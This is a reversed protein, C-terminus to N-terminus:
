FCDITPFGAEGSLCDALYVALGLDGTWLSYRGQGHRARADRYQRIAAAAFARARALWAADGTHRWLKLLAYGNGATGHCLGPGKALPGARWVLEGAALLLADLDATRVPGDAFSTVMGPAGHCHQLLRPPSARTAVAHWNVTTGDGSRWATAALTRPVAEAVRARQRPELWAWGRLLALMNGAFGHVPGLYRARQGYLEQTWLPGDGTEELCGLLREAQRAHLARWREEGGTLRDAVLCALMSGPLGWMLELVPLDLNAACRAHLEDAVAASPALRLALALVGVEGMLWSAHRPYPGRAVEERSAALLRPLLPVLDRAVRAAGRRRLHDLAWVVGTAGFYLSAAGDALGEDLPHAPWLRTENFQDLADDVIEQIGARPAEPDWAEPGPAPLHRAPEALPAGDATEGPLDGRPEARFTLPHGAQRALAAAEAVKAEAEPRPHIGCTSRGLRHAEIATAYAQERTMGCLTELVSLVFDLPTRDDNLLLLRFPETGGDTTAPAGNM